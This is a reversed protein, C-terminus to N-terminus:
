SLLHWAVPTGAKVDRCIGPGLLFDYYKLPMPRTNQADLKEAAKVNHNSSMEAIIFPKADHGIRYGAVNFSDSM